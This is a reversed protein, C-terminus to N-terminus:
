DNPIVLDWGDSTEIMCVVFYGEGTGCASQYVRAEALTKFRAKQVCDGHARDRVEVRYGVTKSM